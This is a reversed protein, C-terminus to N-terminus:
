APEGGAVTLGAIEVDLHNLVALPFRAGRRYDDIREQVVLFRGDHEVIAAVTVDPRFTM